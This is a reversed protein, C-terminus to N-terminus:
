AGYTFRRDPGIEIPNCPADGKYLRSMDRRALSLPLSHGLPANIERRTGDPEVFVIRPM